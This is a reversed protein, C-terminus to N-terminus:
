SNAREDLAADAALKEAIMKKLEGKDLKGVRTVPFADIFEIREPHKFRALGLGSLFEGLEKVTPGKAGAALILYACAREGLLPDPMPVVKADVVDPYRAILNEVEEAGIKEGGRNINDRSRGAFTIHRVGDFTSYRVLDGTRFYGDSTFAGDNAKEDAFYATLTSPGRFCLEGVEGEGVDEEGDPTLVRMIHAPNPASGHTGHRREVPAASHTGIVLGETIGYFNACPVGLKAELEEAQNLLGFVQLSSYDYREPDPSAIIAPAIPGISMMHTVREAEIIRFMTDVDAREHLVLRSGFLFTPFVAWIQAANHIIPLTWLAISDQTKGFQLAWDRAHALYEAHFRPIIKPVGTSGGSLQFSLLDGSGIEIQSLRQRAEALDTSAILDEMRVVGDSDDGGRAVLLHQIGPLQERMSKAFGVIDFSSSFDAQVIYGKAGSQAGLARIEIERYQPITCLPIIGAKFCGFLAIITEIAGGMQFIMRDGPELGLDLLGAGFRDTQEDFEGFSIRNDHDVIAERDAWKEAAERAVDGATSDIWAGNSLWEAAREPDPYVVGDVPRFIGSM